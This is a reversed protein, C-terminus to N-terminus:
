SEPPGNGCKAIGPIPELATDVADVCGRVDVDLAVTVAFELSENWGRDIQYSASSNQENQALLPKGDPVLKQYEQM